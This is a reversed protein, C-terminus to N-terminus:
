PRRGLGEVTVIPMTNPCAGMYISMSLRKKEIQGIRRRKCVEDIIQSQRESDLYHDEYSQVGEPYKAPPMAEEYMQSMIEVYVKELIEPKKM